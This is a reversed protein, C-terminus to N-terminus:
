LVGAQGGGGDGSLKHAAPQQLRAIRRASPALPPRRPQAAV